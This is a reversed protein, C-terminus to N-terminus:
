SNTKPSIKKVEESGQSIVRIRYCKSKLRLPSSVLLLLRVLVAQSVQAGVFIFNYLYTDRAPNRTLMARSRSMHPSSPSKENRPGGRRRWLDLRQCPHVLSSLAISFAQLIESIMHTGRPSFCGYFRNQQTQLPCIFQSIDEKTDRLYIVNDFDLSKDPCVFSTIVVLSETLLQPEASFLQPLPQSGDPEPYEGRIEKRTRCALSPPCPAAQSQLEKALGPSPTKSSATDAKWMVVCCYCSWSSQVQHNDRCMEFIFSHRVHSYLQKQKRKLIYSLASAKWSVSSRRFAM